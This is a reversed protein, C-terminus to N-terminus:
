YINYEQSKFGIDKSEKRNQRKINIARNEQSNLIFDGSVQKLTEEYLRRLEVCPRM